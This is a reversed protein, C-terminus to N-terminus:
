EFIGACVKIWFGKSNPLAIMLLAGKLVEGVDGRYNSYQPPAREPKSKSKLVGPGPRDNVEHYRRGAEQTEKM